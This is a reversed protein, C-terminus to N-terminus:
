AYMIDKRGKVKKKTKKKQELEKKKQAEKKKDKKGGNKELEKAEEMEDIEELMTDYIIKTEYPRDKQSILSPLLYYYIYTEPAMEYPKAVAFYLIPIALLMGICIMSNMELQIDLYKVVNYYIYEVAAAISGFLAQRATLPGILPTTYNTIDKPVQVEIM